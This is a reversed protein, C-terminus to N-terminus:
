QLRYLAAPEDPSVKHVVNLQYGFGQLLGDDVVVNLIPLLEQVQVFGKDFKQLFAVVLTAERIEHGLVEFERRWVLFERNEFVWVLALVRRASLKVSSQLGNQQDVWAEVQVVDRLGTRM